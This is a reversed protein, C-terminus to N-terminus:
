IERYIEAFSKRTICAPIEDPFGATVFCQIRADNIGLIKETNPVFTMPGTLICTGLGLEQAKLIFSNLALGVTVDLDTNGRSEGSILGAAFLKKSFSSVGTVTGVAFLAPADLMFTSFRYYTRILNKIKKPSDTKEARGSELVALFDQYRQKMVSRLANKKEMSNIKFFRVPQSNSPSPALAACTVMTEIWQPPPIDPKYKRISRRSQVLKEFGETM